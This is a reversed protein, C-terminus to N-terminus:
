GILGVTKAWGELEAFGAEGVEGVGHRKWPTVVCRGTGLAAAEELFARGVMGVSISSYTFPQDARGFRELQERVKANHEPAGYWGNAYQGARRFAAPSDGGVLIPLPSQVPKPQFGIPAFNFFEGAFSPAPDAFLTQICALTEDCIRGRRAWDVNLNRYEDPLWGLGVGLEIRGGSIVDATAALKALHIPHRLPAMYIGTGFRLTTTLAALHAFVVLPDLFPSEPDFPRRNAAQEPDDGLHADQEPGRWWDDAIPVCIHEGIWVSEFGMQEALVAYRAVLAPQVSSLNLGLQVPLSM